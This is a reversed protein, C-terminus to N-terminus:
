CSLGDYFISLTEFILLEGYETSILNSKLKSGLEELIQNYVKIVNKSLLVKFKMEEQWLEYNDEGGKVSSALLFM